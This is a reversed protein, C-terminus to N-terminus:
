GPETQHGSSTIPGAHGRWRLLAAAQARRLLLRDAEERLRTLEMQEAPTLEGATRKGLLAAHRAVQESGPRSRWIAWLAEDTYEDLAQLEARCEEPVDQVGPPLGAALARRAVEDVPAHLARATRELREFLEEPITITQAM